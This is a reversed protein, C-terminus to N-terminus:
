PLYVIRWMIGLHTAGVNHYIMCGMIWLIISERQFTKDQEIKLMSGNEGNEVDKNYLILGILVFPTHIIRHM